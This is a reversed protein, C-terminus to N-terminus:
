NKSILTNYTIRATSVQRLAIDFKEVGSLEKNNYRYAFEICYRHLHEKSMYHYIGIYGRKLISWFGEMGNTHVMGNVYEKVSHNIISHDYNYKLNNYAHWEDSYVTVGNEVHADVIPEVKKQQTDTAVQLKVKSQKLIVKEKVIRGKIVKHPREISCHSNCIYYLRLILLM